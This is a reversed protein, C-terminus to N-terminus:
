DTKLRAEFIEYKVPKYEKKVGDPNGQPAIKEAYLKLNFGKEDLKEKFKEFNGISTSFGLLLKGNEKLYKKSQELFRSFTKYEEDYVSQDMLSPNEKSSYGFPINWFITDFKKEPVNEFLDGEFVEIKVQNLEANEKTNEVASPNIDTAFVKSAGKLAAFVAMAGAGCGMELFEEGKRIKIVEFFFKSDSFYKPSFVGPYVVFTKGLIEINYKEKEKNAEELIKETEKFYDIEQPDM